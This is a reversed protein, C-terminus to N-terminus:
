KVAVFSYLRGPVNSCWSRLRGVLDEVQRHGAIRSALGRGVWTSLPRAIGQRYEATSLPYYNIVSEFPGYIRQIILGASRIAQLYEKLLFANEGGYLAQLPHSRLFAELDAPRSIVHERTALFIGGPRLVRAVEQLLRPLHAAHHLVQRGFVIDFSAVGFPLMEGQGRVVSIAVEMEEALRRIAGAGVLAGGDPELSVVWCGERALAYSTIGHGAGLDLAKGPLWERLIRGVAQWEESAAFRAAAASLPEDYYCARVLGEMQRDAKLRRVAEEWTVRDDNM